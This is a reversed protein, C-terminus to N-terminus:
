FKCLEFFHFRSLDYFQCCNLSQQANFLIGTYNCYFKWQKEAWELVGLEGLIVFDHGGFAGIILEFCLQFSM